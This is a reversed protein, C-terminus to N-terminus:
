EASSLPYIPLGHAEAYKFVAATKTVSDDVRDWVSQLYPKVSPYKSILLEEAPTATYRIHPAEHETLLAMMRISIPDADPYLDALVSIMDESSHYPQNVPVFSTDDLVLGNNRAIMTDILADAEPKTLWRDVPQQPTVKRPAKGFAKRNRNKRSM